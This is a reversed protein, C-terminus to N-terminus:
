EFCPTGDQNQLAFVNIERLAMSRGLSTTQSSATIDRGWRGDLCPATTLSLSPVGVGTPVGAPCEVPNSFTGPLTVVVYRGVGECAISIPTDGTGEFDAVTYTACAVQSPTLDNQPHARATTGLKHGLYSLCGSNPGVPYSRAKDSNPFPSTAVAVEFLGLTSGVAIDARDYIQVEFVQKSEGLDLEVWPSVEPSWGFREANGTFGLASIAPDDAGSIFNAPPHNIHTSSLSASVVDVETSSRISLM